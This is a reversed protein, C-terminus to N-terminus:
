THSEGVTTKRPRIALCHPSSRGSDLKYSQGGGSGGVTERRRASKRTRTPRRRQQGDEDLLPNPDPDPAGEALAHNRAAEDAKAIAVVAEPLQGAISDVRALLSRM